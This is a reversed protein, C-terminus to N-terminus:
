ASPHDLEGRSYLGLAFGLTDNLLRPGTRKGEFYESAVFVM